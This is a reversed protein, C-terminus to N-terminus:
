NEESWDSNQSVPVGAPESINKYALSSGAQTPPYNSDFVVLIVSTSRTETKTKQVAREGYVSKSSDDCINRLGCRLSKRGGDRSKTERKRSRSRRMEWDGLAVSGFDNSLFGKCGIAHWDLAACACGEVSMSLEFGASKELRRSKRLRPFLPYCFRTLLGLYRAATLRKEEGDATQRTQLLEQRRDTVIIKTPVNVYRSHKYGVIAQRLHMQPVRLPGNVTLLGYILGLLRCTHLATGTSSDIATSPVYSKGSFRQPQTLVPMNGRSISRRQGLTHLAADVRCLTSTEEYGLSLIKM